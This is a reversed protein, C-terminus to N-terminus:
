ASQKCKCQGEGAWYCHDSGVIIVIVVLAFALMIIAVVFMATPARMGVTRWGSTTMVMMIVAVLAILVTMVMMMVAVPAIVVTVGRLMVTRRVMPVALGLYNVNSFVAREIIAGANVSRYYSSIAGLSDACRAFFRLLAAILQAFIVGFQFVIAGLQATINAFAGAFVLDPFVALFDARIQCFDFSRSLIEAIIALVEVHSPAFPAVIQAPLASGSVAATTFSRRCGSFVLRYGYPCPM